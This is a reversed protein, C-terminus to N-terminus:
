HMDGRHRPFSAEFLAILGNSDISNLDKLGRAQYAADDGGHLAAVIKDALAAHAELQEEETVNANINRVEVTRVQFERGGKGTEQITSSGLGVEKLMGRIDGVNTQQKFMVRLLVGEGFDVGPKLGHFMTWNVVGSLVITLTLGLAWYKYKLFPIHPTKFLQM